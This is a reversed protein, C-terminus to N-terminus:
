EKKLEEIEEKTLGTASIIIKIDVKEKLLKKAIEIQKSKEGQAIGQELGQELGQEVGKRTAYSLRLKEDVVAGQRRLAYWSNIEDQKLKELEENAKKVEENEDMEAVGLSEPNILFKVWTLLKPNKPKMRKNELIKKAKPLEIIDIEFKETLVKKSIETELIKWKTHYKEIEKLNDIEFNAILIAITRKAEEYVEGKLVTRTYLKAWYYLIREEIYDQSAMQVEIDVKVKNNLEARIDLINTKDDIIDGNMITNKELNISVIEDEIIASLLDKTIEENGERGFIRKFVFDNTPVVASRVEETYNKLKNNMMYFEHMIFMCVNRM